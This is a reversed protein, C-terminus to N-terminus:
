FLQLFNGIPAVASGQQLILSSETAELSVNLSALIVILLTAVAAGKKIFYVPMTNNSGAHMFCIFLCSTRNFLLLAWFTNQAM